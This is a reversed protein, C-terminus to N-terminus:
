RAKSTIGGFNGGAPAAAADAPPAARRHHASRRPSAAAREALSRPFRRRRPHDAAPLPDARGRHRRAARRPILGDRRLVGDSLRVPVPQIQVRPTAQPSSTCTAPARRPACRATGGPASGRACCTPSGGSRSPTSRSSVSAPSWRWPSSSTAASSRAPPRRSSIGVPLAYVGIGLITVISAVVRGIPTVPVLDGYGVTSAGGDGVLGGGISSFQQPQAENEIYYMIVDNLGDAAVAPHPRSGVLSRWEASLVRGLTGLAPRSGTLKQAAAAAGPLPVARRDFGAYFPLVVILDVWGFSLWIACGPAAGADGGPRPARRRGVPPRPVRATFVAM